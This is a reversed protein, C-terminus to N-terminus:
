VSGPCASQERCLSGVRLAVADHDNQARHIATHSAAGCRRGLMWRVFADARSLAATVALSALILAIRRDSHSHPPSACAARPACLPSVSHGDCRRRRNAALAARSSLPPPMALVRQM